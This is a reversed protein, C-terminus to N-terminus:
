IAIAASYAWSLAVFLTCALAGAAVNKETAVERALPASPLFLRDIIIRTAVLLLMGTVAILITPGIEAFLNSGAGTLSTMMIIGLGVLFGGFSLGAATNDDHEITHHVDYPTIKQFLWGGFVLLAQGVAWYVLLDVIGAIFSISEGTLAGAIMFGSAVFSGAVVFATGTNRDEIIEKHVCFRHLIWKDNITISLRMLVIALLGYVALSIFADIASQGRVGYTTGGLAIALGLVFGALAVGFAPNDKETLEKQFHYTTTLDFLKKGAFLMLAIVTFFPVSVLVKQLTILLGEMPYREETYNTALTALLREFLHMSIEAPGFYTVDNRCEHLVCRRNKRGGYM